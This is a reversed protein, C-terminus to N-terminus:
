RKRVVGWWERVHASSMFRAPVRIHDESVEGIGSPPWSVNSMEEAHSRFLEEADGTAPERPLQNSDGCPDVTATAEAAKSAASEDPIYLVQSTIVVLLCWCSTVHVIKPHPSVTRVKGVWM